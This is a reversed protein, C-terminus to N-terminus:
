RVTAREMAATTREELSALRYRVAILLTFFM